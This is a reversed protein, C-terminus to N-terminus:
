QEESDFIFCQQGEIDKELKNNSVWWDYIDQGSQYKVNKRGEKVWLSVLKDFAKIYARKYKPNNDLDSSQNPNMPCGICGLRKYGKDYLICYPINRERIYQWVDHESWTIIPHLFYKTSDKKCIEFEKRKGRKISEAGRIGTIVFRGIGGKEKLEACCFRFLRTPISKKKVILQWMSLKPKEIIVDPHQRKIFRVLEPHDVTTLNYHADYKVGARKVLDLVVVSDKGGSFAVYYGEPPEFERIKEIAREESNDFLTEIM